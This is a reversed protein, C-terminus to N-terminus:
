EHLGGNLYLRNLKALEGMGLTYTTIFAGDLRLTISGFEAKITISTQDTVSAINNRSVINTKNNDDSLGRIYSERGLFYNEIAPHVANGFDTIPVGTIGDIYVDFSKIIVPKINQYTEDFSPDIVATLPKRTAKGTEPDYTCARGVQRLLDSTPIRDPFISPRGAVYIIVGSPTDVDKYPYTNLVGLVDSSWRLYDSLAGGMPPSRFRSVVRARYETETEDEIAYSIVEDVTAANQVIGLPSVFNLIDGAELNGAIGNDACIVPIIETPHELTVSEETIYLKGTIDSKLQTGAVLPAGHYTVNVTITGKWQSGNRPEGVGILIGWKVLPRVRRGLINVEGWYATEPFLQLFLWGIQKYLTVYVAAFVTAIVKIFSKPLIRFIKNFNDQFSNILLERIEAITKNEFVM